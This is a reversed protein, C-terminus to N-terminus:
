SYSYNAMGSANSADIIIPSITYRAYLPDGQAYSRIINMLPKGFHLDYLAIAGLTGGAVADIAAQSTGSCVISVQGSLNLDAIAQAAGFAISEDHCYLVDLDSHANLITSAQTYASETTYDTSLSEVVVWNPQSDLADKLASTYADTVTFGEIGTLEAITLEGGLNSYMWDTLAEGFEYTDFSLSVAGLGDPTVPEGTNLMIVLIGAEMARNLVETSSSDSIAWVAIVDVGQAIMTEIQTVQLAEDWDATSITLKCGYEDAATLIDQSVLTIWSSTTGPLSVAVQLASLEAATETPLASTETTTPESSTGENAQLVEGTRLLTEFDSKSDLPILAGSSPQNIMIDGLYCIRWGDEYQLLTYGGAYYSGDIEYLVDRTTMEDAGYIEASDDLYAENGLSNEAIDVLTVDM